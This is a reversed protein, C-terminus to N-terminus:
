DQMLSFVQHNPLRERGNLACLEILVAVEVVKCHLRQLLDLTACVTGGTALVDDVLVVRSGPDVADRHIELASTGYELEYSAKLTDAPLKGSKRVLTLGVKLKYALAAALVFGRAEIGVIQDVGKGAYRDAFSNIVVHFADPNALLPTIDKFGIGEKPFDPIVRINERLTDLM